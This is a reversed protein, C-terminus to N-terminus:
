NNPQWRSARSNCRREVSSVILHEPDIVSLAPKSAKSFSLVQPFRLGRETSLSEFTKGSVTPARYGTRCAAPALLSRLLARGHRSSIRSQLQCGSGRGVPAPAVGPALLVTSGRSCPNVARSVSCTVWGLRQRGTWTAVQSQCDSQTQESM